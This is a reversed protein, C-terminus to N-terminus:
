DKFIQCREADATEYSEQALDRESTLKEIEAKYDAESKQCVALAANLLVIEKTQADHIARLSAMTEPPKTSQSHKCSAIAPEGDCDGACNQHANEDFFECHENICAAEEIDM